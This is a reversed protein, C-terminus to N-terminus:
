PMRGDDACANGRRMLSDGDNANDRMSAVMREPMANAGQMGDGVGMADHLDWDVDDGSVRHRVEHWYLDFVTKQKPDLADYFAQTRSQAAELELLHAQMRDMGARLHAIGRAMQDPTTDGVPSAHPGRPLDQPPKMALQRHADQLVGGAWTDWAAKQDGELYLLGKLTDLTEQTHGIWNFAHPTGADDRPRPGPEAARAGAGATLLGALVAIGACRKASSAMIM